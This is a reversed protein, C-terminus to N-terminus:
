RGSAVHGNESSVAVDKKGNHAAYIM